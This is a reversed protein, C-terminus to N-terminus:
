AIAELGEIALRLMNLDAERASKKHANAWVIQDLWPPGQDPNIDVVLMDFARRVDHGRARVMDLADNLADEIIKEREPTMPTCPQSPQFRALSDPSIFGYIRWYQWAIKRGANMLDRAREGSGLLGATFARGIADFTETDNAPVRYLAHRRQVGDNAAVLKPARERLRGSASRTGRPQGKSLRGKSRGM